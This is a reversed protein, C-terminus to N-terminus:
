WQLSITSNATHLVADKVLPAAHPARVASTLRRAPNISCWHTSRLPQPLLLTKTVSCMVESSGHPTHICAQSDQGQEEGHLSPGQHNGGKWVRGTTITDAPAPHSPWEALALSLKSAGGTNVELKFLSCLSEFYVWLEIKLFSLKLFWQHPPDLFRMLWFPEYGPFAIIEPSEGQFRCCPRGPM